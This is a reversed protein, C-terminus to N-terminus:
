CVESGSTRDHRNEFNCRQHGHAMMRHTYGTFVVPQQRPTGQKVMNQLGEQINGLDAFHNHIGVTWNDHFPNGPLKGTHADKLSRFVQAGIGHRHIFNEHVVSGLHRSVKVQLRVAGIRKEPRLRNGTRNLEHEGIIRCIIGEKANCPQLGAQPISKSTRDIM